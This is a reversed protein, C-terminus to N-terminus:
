EILLDEEGTLEDARRYCQLDNCWIRHNGTVKITKGDKLTIKYWTYKKESKDIGNRYM